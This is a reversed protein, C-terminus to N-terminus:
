CFCPLSNKVTPDQRFQTAGFVSTLNIQHGPRIQARKSTGAPVELVVRVDVGPEIITESRAEANQHIHLISGCRDAFIMDLPFPVDKMWFQVRRDSEYVFLMGRGASLSQRGMLGRIHNFSNDAIEVHWRHEVAETRITVDTTVIETSFFSLISTFISILDM